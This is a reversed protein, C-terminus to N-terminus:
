LPHQLGHVGPHRGGDGRGRGPRREEKDGLWIGKRVKLPIKQLMSEIERMRREVQTEQLPHDLGHFEQADGGLRRVWNMGEVRRTEGGNPEELKIDAARGM